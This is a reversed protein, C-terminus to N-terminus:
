GHVIARAAILGLVGGLLGAVFTTVSYLAAMGYQGTRLAEILDHNFSSYTTFGGILGVTLFLRTNASIAATTLGIHTIFTILVCGVCNVTWTAFPFRSFPLYRAYAESVLFRLGGGLGSGAVVLVLRTLASM